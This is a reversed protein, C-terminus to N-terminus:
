QAFVEKLDPLTMTVYYDKANKTLFYGNRTAMPMVPQFTKNDVVPGTMMTLIYPAWIIGADIEGAGGKYGVLITNESICLSSYVKMTRNLIGAYTLSGRQEDKSTPSFQGYAQLLSLTLPDVIVFNGAGRRTRRAIENATRNIHLSLEKGHNLKEINVQHSNESILNLVYATHEIATESGIAAQIEKEFDPNPTKEMDQLAEIALRTQLKRTCAEVTNEQNEATEGKEEEQELETQQSSYVLSAPGTMPQVGVIERVSELQDLTNKTIQRFSFSHQLAAINQQTDYHHQNELLPKYICHDKEDVTSLLNALEVRWAHKDYSKSFTHIGVKNLLYLIGYIADNSLTVAIKLSRNFTLKANKKALGLPALARHYLKKINWVYSDRSADTM